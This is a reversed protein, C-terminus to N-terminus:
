RTRRRAPHLGPHCPLPASSGVHNWVSLCAHAGNRPFNGGRAARRRGQARGLCGSLRGNSDVAAAARRPGSAFGRRAPLLFPNAFLCLEDHHSVVVRGSRAVRITMAVYSTTLHRPRMRTFEASHDRPRVRQLHVASGRQHNSIRFDLLLGCSPGDGDSPLWRHSGGDTPANM